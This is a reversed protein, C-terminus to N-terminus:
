NIVDTGVVQYSGLGTVMCDVSVSPSAGHNPQIIRPALMSSLYLYTHLFLCSVGLVMLERVSEALRGVAGSSTARPQLGLFVNGNGKESADGQCITM